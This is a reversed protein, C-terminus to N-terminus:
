LCAGSAGVAALLWFAYLQLTANMAHARPTRVTDPIKGIRHVPVQSRKHSSAGSNFDRHESRTRSQQEPFKTLSRKVLASWALQMGHVFNAPFSAAGRM